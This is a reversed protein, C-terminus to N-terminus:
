SGRNLVSGKTIRFYRAKQSVSIIPTSSRRVVSEWEHTAPSAHIAVNISQTPPEYLFKLITIFVM